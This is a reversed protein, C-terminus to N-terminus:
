MFFPPIFWFVEKYTKLIGSNHEHLMRLWAKRPTFMAEIASDPLMASEPQRYQGGDEKNRIPNRVRLEHKRYNRPM